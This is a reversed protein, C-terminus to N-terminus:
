IFACTCMKSFFLCELSVKQVAKKYRSVARDILESVLLEGDGCPVIIRMDGFSITVKM